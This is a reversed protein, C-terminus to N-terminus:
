LRKEKLEWMVELDLSCGHTGTHDWGISVQEFKILGIEVTM